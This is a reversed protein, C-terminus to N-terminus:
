SEEKRLELLKIEEKDVQKKQAMEIKHEKKYVKKALEKQLTSRYL